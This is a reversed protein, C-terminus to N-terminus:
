ITSLPFNRLGQLGAKPCRAWKCVETCSCSWPATWVIGDIQVIDEDCIATYESGPLGCAQFGRSLPVLVGDVSRLFVV